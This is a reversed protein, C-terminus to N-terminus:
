IENQVKIRKNYLKIFVDKGKDVPSDKKNLLDEKDYIFSFNSYNIYKKGLNYLKNFYDISEKTGTKDYEKDFAIIIEDIDFNNILLYIQYINISSGCCAVAINDEFYSSYKLVSKEGEFIIVKKRRSISDKSVNLGYLNLSLPHSYTKEEIRLPLYKGFIEEEKNLTRGRIGILKSDINFHPIIIKNRYPSFSISYKDMSEKTIEEELWEIPYEKEFIKLLNNDYTELNVERKKKQYQDKISHYEEQSSFFDENFDLFNIIDCVIEYFTKRIEKRKYVKEFLNYINYSADCETYCCFTQENPYYYLKMSANEANDNHCITPFILYDGKDIYRDAGLRRMLSIIQEKTLSEKIKKIDFYM